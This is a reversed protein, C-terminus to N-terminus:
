ESTASLEKQFGFGGRYDIALEAFSSTQLEIAVNSTSRNQWFWGHIGDFPAVYAGYNARTRGQNFSVAADEGPPVSVAPTDPESHFNVLVTGSSHWRYLLSDGERLRYKYEVSEFPGLEFRLVEQHMAPVDIAEPAADDLHDSLATFFVQNTDALAILGLRKGIGTPDLGYEAPLVAVLLLVAAVAGISLWQLPISMM